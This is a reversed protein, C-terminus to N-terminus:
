VNANLNTVKKIYKAQKEETKEGAKNSVKHTSNKISQNMGLKQSLKISYADLVSGAESGYDSTQNVSNM